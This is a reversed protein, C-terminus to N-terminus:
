CEALALKCVPDPQFEVKFSEDGDSLIRCVAEDAPSPSACDEFVQHVVLSIAEALGPSLQGIRGEAALQCRAIESEINM